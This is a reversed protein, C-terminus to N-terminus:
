LGGASIYSPVPGVVSTCPVSALPRDLQAKRAEWTMGRMGEPTSQKEWLTPGVRGLCKSCQAAVTPHLAKCRRHIRGHQMRHM